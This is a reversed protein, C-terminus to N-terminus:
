EGKTITEQDCAQAFIDGLMMDEDRLSKIGMTDEDVEIDHKFLFRWLYKVWCDTDVHGYVDNKKSFLPGTVGLELKFSGISVRILRGTITDKWLNDLLAQLQCLNM